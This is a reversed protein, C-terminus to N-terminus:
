TIKMFYVINILIDFLLFCFSSFVNVCGNNIQLSIRTMHFIKGQFDADSFIIIIGYKVEIVYLYQILIDINIYIYLCNEFLKM